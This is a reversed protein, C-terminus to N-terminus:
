REVAPFNAITNHVRRDHAPVVVLEPYERALEHVRVISRRVSEQDYDALTRSMWPREAPLQIGEIAWTLDGIFLFRKGSRLNVFMGISGPTHGPLPVLVISGDGFVDFSREFNEYAPGSMEFRHIKLKEGMQKALERAPLTEIFDAEEKPFWAEAQPFDELGSIHDWHSHSIIAMRIGAPDIGHEKLQAAASTEKDYTTLAQMLSPISKIHEDVNNGFGADFIFTATPHQVLIAAMGSDYNDSWSGGRYIFSKKSMMKGCEIVSLKVEPLSNADRNHHFSAPGTSYANVDLKQPVFTYAFLAILALALLGAALLLRKFTKRMSPSPTSRGSDKM